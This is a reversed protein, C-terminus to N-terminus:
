GPMWSFELTGLLASTEWKSASNEAIPWDKARDVKGILKVLLGDCAADHQRVATALTALTEGAQTDRSANHRAAIQRTQHVPIAPACCVNRGGIQCDLQDVTPGSSSSSVQRL